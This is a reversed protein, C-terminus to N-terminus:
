DWWWRDPPLRGVLKAHRAGLAGDQDRQMREADLALDPRISVGGAPVILRNGKWLANVVCQVQKPTAYTEVPLSSEQALVGQRWDARGYYDQDRIFAASVVLDMMNRLQAYVPVRAAIEDYQRTFSGTFLESARSTPGATTQLKGGPGITMDAGSLEVGQGVLEMALRDETVKVCEYNPIFWWRQTAAMKPSDLAGLYTVMKVPPPELGIGILKMRYDAEILVQAFHTKESVTFVRINSMGLSDRAGRAIQRAIPDRQSQSIRRPITKQFEVLKALGEPRPEITCGIFPKVDSGPPYARLAVLLDELLLTPRGSTLGVTRGSLDDVWGEAPGAIVIDREEPYFFVYQARQLGALHLMADDPKKGADLRAAIARELKVLSVKRLPSPRQLDGPMEAKAQAVRRAFLKGTPDPFEKTSLVGDADIAVGFVPQQVTLNQGPALRPVGLAILLAAVAVPWRPSLSSAPM